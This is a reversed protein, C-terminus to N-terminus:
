ENLFGELVAVIAQAEIGTAVSVAEIHGYRFDLLEEFVLDVVDSVQSCSLESYDNILRDSIREKIPQLLM